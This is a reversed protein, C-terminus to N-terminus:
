KSNKDFKYNTSMFVKNTECHLKFIKNDINSNDAISSSGTSLQQHSSLEMLNIGLIEDIFRQSPREQPTNISKPNPVKDDNSPLTNNMNDREKSIATEM